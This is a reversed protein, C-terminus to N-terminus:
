GGEGLNNFATHILSQGSSLKCAKINALRTFLRAVSTPGGSPRLEIVRHVDRLTVVAACPGEGEAGRLAVSSMRGGDLQAAM